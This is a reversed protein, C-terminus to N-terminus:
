HVFCDITLYYYSLTISFEQGILGKLSPIKITQSYVDVSKGEKNQTLEFSAFSANTESDFYSSAYLKFDDVVAPSESSHEVM